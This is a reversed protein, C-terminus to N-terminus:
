RRAPAAFVFATATVQTANDYGGTVLVSGDRLAVAAPFQREPGPVAAAATLAGGAYVEVATGGAIVVQGDPLAVVADTLKYRPQALRPGPRFTAAKPDYV